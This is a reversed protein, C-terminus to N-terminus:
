FINWIQWKDNFEIKFKLYVNVVITNKKKNNLTFAEVDKTILM